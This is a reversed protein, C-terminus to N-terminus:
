HPVDGDGVHIRVAIEIHYRGDAAIRVRHDIELVPATLEYQLGEIDRGRGRRVSALGPHELYDGGVAAAGPVAVDPQEGPLEQEFLGETVWRVSVPLRASSAALPTGTSGSNLGSVGDDVVV